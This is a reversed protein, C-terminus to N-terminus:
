TKVDFVEDRAWFEWKVQVIKWWVTGTEGEWPVVMYAHLMKRKRTTTVMTRRWIPPPGQTHYLAMRWRTVCISFLWRGASTRKPIDKPETSSFCYCCDQLWPPDEYTYPMNSCNLEVEPPAQHTDNNMQFGPRLRTPGARYCLCLSSALNYWCMKFM